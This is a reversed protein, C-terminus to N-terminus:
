HHEHSLKNPDYCRGIIDVGAKCGDLRQLQPPSFQEGIDDQGKPKKAIRLERLYIIGYTMKKVRRLEREGNANTYAVTDNKYLRMVLKGMPFQKKWEPVFDKQHADYSKVIEIQWKSNPDFPRPNYIDAYLNESSAYYKYIRGNKDKVPIMTHPNAKEVMKLKKVHHEKAWDQLAQKFEKDDAYASHLQSIQAKINADLINEIDGPALSGIDKRISFLAYKPNDLDAGIYGYATEKVLGGATQQRKILQSPKTQDPKFSVFIGDIKQKIQNHTFGQYPTSMLGKFQEKGQKVADMYRKVMARDTMAIVFADLAHHRHDTRDKDETDGIVTNLSWTRRLVETLKGTVPVIVDGTIYRLYQASITSMYRTDVLMRDIVKNEDGFQAMANQMFRWRKSQPLREARECIAKWDYSSPSNGFAEYPSREGKDHNCSRHSLTKNSINDDYTRSKPLIHEIEINPSFIETQSIQKGCYVCQRELVSPSLEEWLKYKARNEANDSIGIENLKGRVYENFKTNKDQIRKILRQYEIFAPEDSKLRIPIGLQEKMSNILKKPPASDRALELSINKPAGYRLTLANLLKRIQNLAIHVTPNNIKGFKDADHDHSPAKRNLPLTVTRLIEGYYPLDGNTFVEGSYNDSHNYGADRCAEYYNKGQRLGPLIKKLAKLSLNGHGDPLYIDLAKDALERSFGMDMLLMLATEDVIECDQIIDIVRMQASEDLTDWLMGLEKDKHLSHLTQNGKIEKKNETELNFSYEEAVGKGLLKTRLSKFTVSEKENLTKYIFDSEAPTLDRSKKEWNNSLKLNNIDQRIRVEQFLPYAKLCREEDPEFTCKGVLPKKLPRQYFIIQKLEAMKEDTLEPHYRAQSQWLMEFEYEVIARTPFIRDEDDLEKDYRFKAPRCLHQENKPLSANRLHLYEGLTRANANDINAELNQMADTLKTDRESTNLKRNSKFGRRKALHIYARALQPLSIEKDLADVRLQLPNCAFILKRAEVDQPLFGNSDFFQLIRKRRDLYRDMNRRMGRYTRRAVSLPEKTKDDRSDPFIRVGMNIIGCPNDQDDLELMCWGISTSGMDIGLRYNKKDQKKM